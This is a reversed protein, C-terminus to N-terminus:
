GTAARSTATRRSAHAARARDSDWETRFDAQFRETPSARFQLAVPSFSRRSRQATFSSQYQLDYQAARADTYYSQNLSLSLIERAVDKKAYLRNTLDYTM